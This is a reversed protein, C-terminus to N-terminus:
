YMKGRGYGKSACGTGRVIGGKKYGAQQKAREYDESAASASRSAAKAREYIEDQKKPDRFTAALDLTDSVQKSAREADRRASGVRQAETKPAMDYYAQDIDKADVMESQIPINRPTRDQTMPYKKKPM